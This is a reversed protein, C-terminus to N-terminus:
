QKKSKILLENKLEWIEELDGMRSTKCVSIRIGKYSISGYCSPKITSKCDRIIKRLELREKRNM